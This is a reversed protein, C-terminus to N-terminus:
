HFIEFSVLTLSIYFINNKEYEITIHDHRALLNASCIGAYLKAM